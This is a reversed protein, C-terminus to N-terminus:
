HRHESGQLGPLLAAEAGAPVALAEAVRRDWWELWARRRREALLEAAIAARCESFARTTAPRAAEVVLLHWGFVSQVPGCLTGPGATFIAEELPGSLHGREAWGLDGLAYRSGRDLSQVPALAGLGESPTAARAVALRAHEAAERTAFLVHRVRRAEPVRYRHVNSAFYRRLEAEDPHPVDLESAMELRKVWETPGSGAPLGLRAAEKHALHNILVTRTAWAVLAGERQRGGHPGTGESGLGLRSGAPTRELRVMEAELDERPVPVGDVWGIPGQHSAPCDTGM